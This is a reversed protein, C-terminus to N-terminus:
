KYPRDNYFKTLIDAIEEVSLKDGEYTKDTAIGWASNYFLSKRGAAGIAYVNKGNKSQTYHVVFCRVGNFRFQFDDINPADQLIKIFQDRTSLRHAM